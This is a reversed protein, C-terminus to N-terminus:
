FAGGLFGLLGFLIAVLTLKRFKAIDKSKRLSQIVRLLILNTVLVPVIYKLDFFESTLIPPFLSLIIAILFFISSMKAAFEAGYLRAITKVNRIADGRIDEIGKMIERGLGCFFAISSLILVHYTLRSIIGGFIFPASMTFAVYVNGLFGLEKLKYNYFHGLISITFAFLFAQLSIMLSAMCGLPFFLISLILATKKSIEGRVLPRDFRKNAFDAEYDIYDNMAFTSAQFFIATLFGLIFLELSTGDGLFIGIAVGIGYMIGHEFRLLQWFSRLFRKM